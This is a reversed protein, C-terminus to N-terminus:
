GGWEDRVREYADAIDERYADRADRQLERMGANYEDRTIRGSDYDQSLAEEEREMMREIQHARSM